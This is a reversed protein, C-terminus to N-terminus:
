EWAFARQSDVIATSNRFTAMIRAASVGPNHDPRRLEWCPKTARKREHAHDHHAWRRRRDLPAAHPLVEVEDRLAVGPLRTRARTPSNSSKYIKKSTCRGDVGDVGDIFIETKLTQMPYGHDLFKAVSVVTYVVPHDVPHEGSGGPIWSGFQWLSGMPPIAKGAGMLWGDGGRPDAIGPRPSVSLMPSAGSSLAGWTRKQASKTRKVGLLLGKQRHRRLDTGSGCRVDAFM